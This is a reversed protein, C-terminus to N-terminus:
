YLNEQPMDFNIASDIQSYIVRVNDEIFNFYELCNNM